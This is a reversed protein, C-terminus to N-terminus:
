IILLPLLRTFFHDGCLEDLLEDVVPIQFMDCVTKSNLVHYDICFQWSEDLKKVLLVPSSFAFTSHSIIGQQLMERCQRALEDKLLQPYRYPRVVIPTTDPLLHIRHIHRPPPPLGTAITFVDNFEKLLTVMLNASALAHVVTSAGPTAV